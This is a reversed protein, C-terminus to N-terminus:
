RFQFKNLNIKQDHQSQKKPRSPQWPGVQWKWEDYENTYIRKEPVWQDRFHWAATDSGTKPCPHFMLFQAGPYNVKLRLHCGHSRHQCFHFSHHYFGLRFSGRWNIRGLSSVRWWGVRRAHSLSCPLRVNWSLHRIDLRWGLGRWHYDVEISFLFFLRHAFCLLTCPPECLNLFAETALSIFQGTEVLYRGESFHFDRGIVFLGLEDSLVIPCAAGSSMQLVVQALHRM